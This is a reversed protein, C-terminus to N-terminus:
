GRRTKNKCYRYWSHVKLFVEMKTFLFRCLELLGKAMGVPSVVFSSKDVLFVSARYCQWPLHSSQSEAAPSSAVCEEGSQSSFPGSKMEAPAWRFRKSKLCMKKVKKNLSYGKRGGSYVREFSSSIRGCPMLITWYWKLTTTILLEDGFYKLM